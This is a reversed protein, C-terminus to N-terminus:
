GHPLIPRLASPKPRLDAWKVPPFPQLLHQQNTGQLSDSLVDGGMGTLGIVEELERYALLGSDRTVKSGCFKLKLRSDFSVRMDDNKADGM